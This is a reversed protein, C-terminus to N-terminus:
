LKSIFMSVIRDDTLKAAAAPSVRRANEHATWRNRVPMDKDDSTIEYGLIIGIREVVSITMMVYPKGSKPEVYVWDGYELEDLDMMQM